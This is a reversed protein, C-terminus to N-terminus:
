REGRRLRAVAAKFEDRAVRLRSYATNVPIGLARAIEDMAVGDIEYLVFVARRELAIADLARLVLQRDEQTRLREDALPEPDVPEHAVGAGVVDAANPERRARRRHQSLIRFAFGFLWPKIPRAPDYEALHGQVQVFVDHTLDELDRPPAGLRRLTNWVYGAHADYVDRLEVRPLTAAPAVAPAARPVMSLIQRDEARNTM